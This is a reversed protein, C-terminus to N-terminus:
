LLNRLVPLRRVGVVLVNGLLFVVLLWICCAPVASIYPVSWEWIFATLNRLYDKILYIGFVNSGCWLILHNLVTNNWISKEGVYRILDYVTIALVMILSELSELSHQSMVWIYLIATVLVAWGIDIGFRRGGRQRMRQGNGMLYGLIFYSISSYLHLDIVFNVGMHINSIDNLTKWGLLLVFLLRKEQETLNQVMKRLFPLIFLIGLYEYLFWYPLFIEQTYFHRFFEGMYGSQKGVICLYFYRVVSFIVLAGTIRPIRKRYVKEWPERKSLLLAGSIMWFLPVGISSIIRGTLSMMYVWTSETYMWADAGRGGTHQYMICFVAIIRCIELYITREKSRGTERDSM